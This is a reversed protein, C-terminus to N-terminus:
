VMDISSLDVRRGDDLEGICPSITKIGQSQLYNLVLFISTLFTLLKEFRM